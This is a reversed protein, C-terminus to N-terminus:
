RKKTQKKYKMKKPDLLYSFRVTITNNYQGRIRTNPSEYAPRMSLISYQFKVGLGFQEKILFTFGTQFSLDFRRPAVFPAPSNTTDTGLTTTERYRLLSGFNLGVGFIVFRKDHVNISFPIDIYDTTIDFRDKVEQGASNLYTKYKPRAGRMSYIMEISASFNKHFKVLTGIGAYAGLKTYGFEADGDVQSLNLGASFLGKFLSEKSLDVPSEEPTKSPLKNDFANKDYNHDPPLFIRNDEKKPKKPEPKVGDEQANLVFPFLIILLTLKKYM